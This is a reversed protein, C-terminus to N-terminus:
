ETDRKSTIGREKTAKTAIRDAYAKIKAVKEKTLPGEIENAKELYIRRYDEQFNEIEPLFKKLADQILQDVFSLKKRLIARALKVTEIPDSPSKREHVQLLCEEVLRNVLQNPTQDLAKALDVFKETLRDYLIASIKRNQNDM